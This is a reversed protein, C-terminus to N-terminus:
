ESSVCFCLCLVVEKKRTRVLVAVKSFESVRVISNLGGINSPSGAPVHARVHSVHREAGDM